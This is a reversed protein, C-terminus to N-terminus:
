QFTARIAAAEAESIIFMALAHRFCPRLCARCEQITPLGHGSRPGIGMVECAEDGSLLRHDIAYPGLQAGSRPALRSGDGAADGHDVSLM